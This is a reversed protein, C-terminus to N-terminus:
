TLTRVLGLRAKLHLEQSLLQVLWSSFYIYIYATALPVLQSFFFFMFLAARDSPWSQRSESSDNATMETMWMRILWKVSAKFLKQGTIEDVITHDMGIRIFVVFAGSFTCFSPVLSQFFVLHLTEVCQSGGTRDQARARQYACAFCDNILQMSPIHIYM